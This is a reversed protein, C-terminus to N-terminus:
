YVGLATISVVKDFTDDPFPLATIDGAVSVFHQKKIKKEARALMPVSIDLGVIFPGLSLMDLTFVGTGCGADLIMEGSQPDLLDLTLRSEYQKVLAGVPTEFWEDYRDPWPDFLEGKIKEDDVM